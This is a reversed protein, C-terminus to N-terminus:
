KGKTLICKLWIACIMLLALEGLFFLVSFLALGVRSHSAIFFLSELRSSSIREGEPYFPFLVLILFIWGSAMLMRNRRFDEFMKGKMFWYIFVPAAVFSGIISLLLISQSVMPANASVAIDCLYPMYGCAEQLGHLLIKSDSFIDVPVFASYTLLVLIVAIVVGDRRTDFVYM